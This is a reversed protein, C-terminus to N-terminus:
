AQFHLLRGHALDPWGDVDFVAVGSTRMGTNTLDRAEDSDDLAWALQEVSPNHGVLVVTDAAEDVEHLVELLDPVSAEYVRDDYVPSVSGVSALSWTERTRAATSVIVVSPSIGKRQLWERVDGADARGRAALVRSHDDSRHPEAKSHRLLVLTPM